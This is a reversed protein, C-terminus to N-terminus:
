AILLVIWFCLFICSTPLNSLTNKILTVRGDKSLYMWKRGALHREIKEIIEDRILKAKFSAGFSLGLYKM